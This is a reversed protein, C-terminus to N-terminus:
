EEKGAGLCFAYIEKVGNEKLIKASEGLTAGTTIVDDVLWIIKDKLKVGEKVQFVGRLNQIRENRGLSTQPATDKTRILYHRLQIGLKGSLISALVETQNFGREALKNPHMPIPVVADPPPLNNVTCSIMYDSLRLLLYPQGKYKVNCILDRWAGGYYGLSVVKDLTKPGIGSSCDKCRESLNGILKGCSPCRSSRPQFYEERCGSCIPEVSKASCLLCSEEQDYWLLSGLKKIM